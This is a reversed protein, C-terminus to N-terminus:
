DEKNKSSKRAWEVINAIMKSAAVPASANRFFESAEELNDAFHEAKQSIADVRRFIRIMIIVLAICLTLLIALTISLVIVLIDYADM